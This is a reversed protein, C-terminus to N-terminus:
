GTRPVALGVSPISSRVPGRVTSHCSFSERTRRRIPGITPGAPVVAFTDFVSKVLSNRDISMTIARRVNRDGFLPHPRSHNAPDRLNFQMFAYATGPLVIAKLNSHRRMRALDEVRLVDFLDADGSFLKTVATM